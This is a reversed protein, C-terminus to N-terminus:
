AKLEGLLKEFRRDPCLWIAAVLVYLGCSIWPHVFALPLAALYIVLALDKGQLGEGAPRLHIKEYPIERRAAKDFRREQLYYLLLGVFV